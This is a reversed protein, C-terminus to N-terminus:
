RWYTPLEAKTAKLIEMAARRDAPNLRTYKADTEAGSLVVFLRHYVKSKAEAPLGEFARSYIMYSLPYRFLRQQLDFDRLSRGQGDRPGAAAFRQQFADGRVPATLPPEDVGLMYDALALVADEGGSPRDSGAYLGGLKVALDVFGSQHELTMLAVVDSTPRPYPSVDFRGALGGPIAGAAPPPRHDERAVINGRHRQGGDSGTVYWGGWRKEFPTRADTLDADPDDLYGATKGSAFTTVNLVMMAAVGDVVAGHCSLCQDSEERFRPAAGAKNELTYFRRRGDRGQASAEILPANPTAAISVDDGFYIARPTAPSIFATQLSTKSFVLVQSNPDLRLSQLLGSMYGLGRGDFALKASGSALAANLAQIDDVPKQDEAASVRPSGAVVLAATTLM